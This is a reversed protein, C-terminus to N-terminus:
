SSRSVRPCNRLEREDWRGNVRCGAANKHGGGGFQEAVRAVNIRRGKSRLSVRFFDPEVRAYLRSSSSRKGRASYQRFRTTATSLAARNKMEVSQRM